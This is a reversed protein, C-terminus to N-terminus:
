RSATAQFLRLEGPILIEGKADMKVRSSRQDVTAPSNTDRSTVNLWSGGDKM